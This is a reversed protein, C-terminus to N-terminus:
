RAWSMSTLTSSRTKSRVHVESQAAQHNVAEPKEAEFVEALRSGRLDVAYLRAASNVFEKHGRSLDDVVVVQHGAAVYRDVVHSGIFGAGGTVLIKM